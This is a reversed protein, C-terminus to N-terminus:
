VDLDEIARNGALRPDLRADRVVLPQQDRVVHQCFSHSLPTERTTRWPEPLGTMGPFWQRDVEVISVLGVPVHLLRRVLRAYHDFPGPGSEASDNM